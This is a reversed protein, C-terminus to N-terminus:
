IRAAIACRMPACNRICTVHTVPCAFAKQAGCACRTCSDEIFQHEGSLWSPCREDTNQPQKVAGCNCNPIASVDYRTVRCWSEHQPAASAKLAAGDPPASYATAISREAHSKLGRLMTGVKVGRRFTAAGMKVDVPLIYKDAEAILADLTPQTLAVPLTEDSAGTFAARALDELAIHEQQQNREKSYPAGIPKSRFAPFKALYAKLLVRLRSCEQYENM